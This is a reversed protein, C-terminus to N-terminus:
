FTFTTRVAGITITDNASNHFPNFVVIVGPTVSINDTLQIRYFGELHYTADPQGGPSALLNSQSLLSPLNRGNPLNSTSIRPPQGFYLGALNGEGGLDPFNLYGMWNFTEVTGTDGVYDSTTFGGWGGFTFNQSIRWEASLGFANTQMPARSNTNNQIILQDDGIGTGLIGFPTYSNIYQATIDIDPTPAFALQAGFTNTEFDGGFIEPSADGPFTGVDGVAYVGQLSLSPNIQWDFGIGTDAGGITIIPNRQAFRSIPGSGASEVRNGGRFVNVPAIGKPGVMVAFSDGILHRYNLDTLRFNSNNDGEYALGVYNFPARNSNTTTEGDGAQFSTLLLSRPSFQTFLSVQANYLMTINTDTDTFRQFQTYDNSASRGQFGIIAQGFMKTTTSFQNDEMFTTRAELNDVQTAIANLELEFEEMLRRLIELDERTALGATADALVREMQQLCANLGAAFEYRSLSRGGRFTGDPYGAICNYREVLTSLAEYAWDGPFVDRLQNVSNVQSMAPENKSSVAPTATTEGTANGPTAEEEILQDLTVPSAQSTPEPTNLLNISNSDASTSFSSLNAIETSVPEYLTNENFTLQNETKAQTAEQSVEADTFVSHNFTTENTTANTATENSVPDNLVAQLSDSPNATATASNALVSLSGFILASSLTKNLKLQSKM